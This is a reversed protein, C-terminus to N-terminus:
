RNPGSHKGAVAELYLWEKWGYGKQFVNEFVFLCVQRFCPVGDDRLLVFHKFQESM